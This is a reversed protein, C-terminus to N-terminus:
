RRHFRRTSKRGGTYLTPNDQYARSFDEAASKMDRKYYEALGRYFRFFGSDSVDPLSNLFKEYQGLYLDTNLLSGNAKVLPDIQRARLCEDLSENLMRDFRYAYGLEWHASAANPNNALADRLLLVAEEVKGRDVPLNSFFVEAELQKPQLALTREYADKARRYQERGGM